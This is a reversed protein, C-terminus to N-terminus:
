PAAEPSAPLLAEGDSAPVGGTPPLPGRCRSCLCWPRLFAAFRDPVFVRGCARCRVLRSM